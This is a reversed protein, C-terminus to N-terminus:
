LEGEAEELGTLSGGDLLAEDVLDSQCAGVSVWIEAPHIEVEPTFLNWLSATRTESHTRM